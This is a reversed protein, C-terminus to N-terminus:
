GQEAPNGRPRGRFLRTMERATERGAAVVYAEGPQLITDAEDVGEGSARSLIRGGPPLHIDSLRQGAIPAGAAVRLELIRLEDDVAGLVRVGEQEETVSGEQLRASEGAGLPADSGFPARMVTHASAERQAVRCIRDNAQASGTLAAVVDCRGISARRLVDPQTADGCVVSAWEEGQLARCRARDAEIISVDHGKEALARATQISLGDGGCVIVRLKARGAQEAGVHAVISALLEGSTPSAARSRNEAQKKKLLREGTFFFFGAIPLASMPDAKWVGFAANLVLGALVSVALLLRMSASKLAAVPDFHSPPLLRRAAWFLVVTLVISAEVIGEGLLTPGPRAGTLIAHVSRLLVYGGAGLAGYGLFRSTQPDGDYTDSEPDRWALLRVGDMGSLLAFAVLAVSDAYVGVLM